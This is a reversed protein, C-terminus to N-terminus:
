QAKSPPAVIDHGILKIAVAGPLLSIFSLHLGVNGAFLMAFYALPAANIATLIAIAILGILIM